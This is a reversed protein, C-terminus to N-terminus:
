AIAGFHVDRGVVVGAGCGGIGAGLGLGAAARGRVRGVGWAGVCVLTERVPGRRAHRVLHGKRVRRRGRRVCIAIEESGSVVEEVGVHIVGSGHVVGVTQRVIEHEAIFPLQSTHRTPSPHRRHAIAPPILHQVVDVQPPIGIM